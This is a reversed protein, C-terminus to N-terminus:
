PTESRRFRELAELAQQLKRRRRWLVFDLAAGFLIVALVLVFLGIVFGQVLTERPM